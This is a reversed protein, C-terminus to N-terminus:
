ACTADHKRLICAQPSGLMTAVTVSMRACHWSQTAPFCGLLRHTPIEAGSNAWACKDPSGQRHHRLQHCSAKGHQALAAM